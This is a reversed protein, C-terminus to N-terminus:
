EPHINFRDIATSMIDKFMPTVVGDTPVENAAVFCVLQSSSDALFGTFALNYVGKRYGGNEEDYIEATSTKGAVNFGEIAAQKGTGDTVVTKLMSTIDEIAEKNEIVDETAYEAVEGSQPKSILFHPTCEVGDNVLAGYFRTIQLPTLSIGQGFSINYMGVTSLDEPDALSGLIDTGQEGEGPYDVGTKSHLNYELIKSHLMSFGMREMALSIGINSSQDLIERLTYTADGREHADTITYGDATISAPCFLETDPSMTGSELIAMTTVSKFISGPEFLDTVAKLKTAGEKVESRDAPNFLPLSAAAYIEGTGGDMVIASGGNATMGKEDATLREEVYQQLEIDLSIIIDQGDVAEKSENKGGPIPTGDSGTEMRTYGAEGSLIDDYYLELGSIGTYYERNNDQDVELNCAGIVQGGVQGNPYERKWEAKCHIGLSAGEHAGGTATLEAVAEEMREGVEADAKEKIESYRTNGATVAELYDSKRGGLVDVLVQATTDPDDVEAPDVYITSAEVSTALVVGNRDYITGRRPEDWSYSMRAREAKSALDPAAIAQLYVLRLSLLAAVVAFAVIPWFVRNSDPVLPQASFRPAQSRRPRQSGQARQTRAM